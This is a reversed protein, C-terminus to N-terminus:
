FGALFALGDGRTISLINLAELPVSLKRINWNKRTFDTLGLSCRMAKTLFDQDWPSLAKINKKYIGKLM